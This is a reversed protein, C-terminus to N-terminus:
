KYNNFIIRYEGYGALRLAKNVGTKGWYLQLPKGGFGSDNPNLHIWKNPKVALDYIDKDNKKYYESNWISDNLMFSKYEVGCDDKSCFASAKVIYHHQGATLIRTVSSSRGVNGVMNVLSPMVGNDPDVKAMEKVVKAITTNVSESSYEKPIYKLANYYKAAFRNNVLEIGAKMEPITLGNHDDKGGNNVVGYIAGSSITRLKDGLHTQWATISKIAVAGCTYPNEQSFQPMGTFVMIPKGDLKIIGITNNVHYEQTLGEALVSTSLILSSLLVKLIINLM